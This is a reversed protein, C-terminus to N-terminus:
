TSAHVDLFVRRFPSIVARCDGHSMFSSMGCWARQRDNWSAFLARLLVIMSAAPLDKNV